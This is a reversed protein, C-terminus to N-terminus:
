RVRLRFVLNRLRGQGVPRVPDEARRQLKSAAPEGLGCYRGPRETVWELVGQTMLSLERLNPQRSPELWHGEVMEWVGLADRSLRDCIEIYDPSTQKM